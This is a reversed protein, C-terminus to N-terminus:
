AILCASLWGRDVVAHWRVMELHPLRAGPLGWCDCVGSTYAGTLTYVSLCASLHVAACVNDRESDHSWRPHNHRQEAATTREGFLGVRKEEFQSKSLPPIVAEATKKYLGHIAAKM